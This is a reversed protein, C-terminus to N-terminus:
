ECTCSRQDKIHAVLRTKLYKIFVKALADYGKSTPHIQDTGILRKSVGSFNLDAPKSATNSKAIYKNLEKVFPGQAGRNPLYLVSTVVLISKGTLLKTKTRITDAISQLRKFTDSVGNTDGAGYLWKDNRGLDLIVVDSSVITNLLRSTEVDSDFADQVNNLLQQSNLGQVGVNTLTLDPFKKQARLVYGGKNSNKTDGFGYVLSDGLVTVQVYKDCNFDPILNVVSCEQAFSVSSCLCIIVFALLLSTASLIKNQRM